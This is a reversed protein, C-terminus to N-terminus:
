RLGGITATATGCPDWGILFTREALGFLENTNRDLLDHGRNSSVFVDSRYALLAPTIGIEAGEPADTVVVPTGYISRLSTSNNPYVLSREALLPLARCSVHLVGLAGYHERLWCEVAGLAEATDFTGLDAYEPDEVLDRWLRMSVAQDERSTLHERARDTAWDASQAIPSCKYTGYVTYTHAEGTGGEADFVKPFGEAEEPDCDYVLVPPLPDCTMAEWVAGNEWRGGNAPLYTVVSSIGYPLPVRPPGTIVQAPAVTTM